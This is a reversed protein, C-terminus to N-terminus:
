ESISFSTPVDNQYKFSVTGSANATYSQKKDGNVKLTYTSHPKLGALVFQYEGRSQITWDRKDSWEGM